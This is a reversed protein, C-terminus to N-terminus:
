KQTLIHGLSTNSTLSDSTSTTLENAIYRIRLMHPQIDPRLLLLEHLTIIIL